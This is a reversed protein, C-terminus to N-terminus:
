LALERSLLFLNIWTSTCLQWPLGKRLCVTEQQSTSLIPMELFNQTWFPHQKQKNKWVLINFLTILILQTCWCIIVFKFSYFSSFISGGNEDTGSGNEIWIMFGKMFGKVLGHSWYVLTYCINQYEFLNSYKNVCINM